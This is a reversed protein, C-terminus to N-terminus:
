IQTHSTHPTHHKRTHHINHYTHLANQINCTHTCRKFSYSGLLGENTFRFKNTPVSPSVDGFQYVGSLLFFIKDEAENGKNAHKLIVNKFSVFNM